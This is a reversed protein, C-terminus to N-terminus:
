AATETTDTSTGSIRDPVRSITALGADVVERHAEAFSVRGGAQEELQRQVADIRAKQAKTLVVSVTIYRSGKAVPM